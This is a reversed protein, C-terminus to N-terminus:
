FEQSEALSLLLDFRLSHVTKKGWAEKVKEIKLFDTDSNTNLFYIQDNLNYLLADLALHSWRYFWTFLFTGTRGLTRWLFVLEPMSKLECMLGVNVLYCLCVARFVLLDTFSYPWIRGLRFNLVWQYYVIVWCLKYLWTRPTNHSESGKLIFLAM